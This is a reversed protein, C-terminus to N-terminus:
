IHILSLTLATSVGLGAIVPFAGTITRSIRDEKTDAVGIAVGSAILSAVATLVETPASGLMLDRKKDFYEVCESHNAKRLLKGTSKIGDEFAAKEESKLHPNLLEMIDNYAGKKTKGDGILSDVIAKGEEELRNREPM